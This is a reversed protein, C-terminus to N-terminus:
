ERQRLLKSAQVTMFTIAALKLGKYKRHRSEGQGNNRVDENDHNQIVKAKQRCLKIIYYYVRPIHFAVYMDRVSAGRAFM